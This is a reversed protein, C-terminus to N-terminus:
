AKIFYDCLHSGEPLKPYNVGYKEKILKCYQKADVTYEQYITEGALTTFHLRIRKPVHNFDPKNTRLYFFIAEQHEKSIVYIKQGESLKPIVAFSEGDGFQIHLNFIPQNNVIELSLTKDRKDEQAYFNKLSQNTLTKIKNKQILGFWYKDHYYVQSGSKIAQYDNELFLVPRNAAKERERDLFLQLHIILLSIVLGTIAGYFSLWDGLDGNLYASFSSILVSFFPGSLIILVILLLLIKWNNKVYKRM